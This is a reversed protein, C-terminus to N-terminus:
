KNRFGLFEDESDTSQGEAAEVAATEVVPESALAGSMMPVQKASLSQAAEDWKSCAPAEARKHCHGLIVAFHALDDLAASLFGVNDAQQEMVRM